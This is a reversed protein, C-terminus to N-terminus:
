WSKEQVAKMHNLMFETKKPIEM